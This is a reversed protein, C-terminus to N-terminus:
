LLAIFLYHFDSVKEWFKHKKAVAAAMNGKADEVENETPEPTPFQEAWEKHAEPFFTTSTTKNQQAEVFAPVRAELWAM